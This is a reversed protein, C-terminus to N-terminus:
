SDKRGRRSRYLLWSALVVGGILLGALLGWLVPAIESALDALDVENM